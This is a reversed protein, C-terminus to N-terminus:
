LGIELIPIALSRVDIRETHLLIRIFFKEMIKYWEANNNRQIQDTPEVAHIIYDCRNALM